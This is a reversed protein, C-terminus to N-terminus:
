ESGTTAVQIGDIIRRGTTREFVSYCAGGLGQICRLGGRAALATQAPPRYRLLMVRRPCAALGTSRDLSGYIRVSKGGERVGLSRL